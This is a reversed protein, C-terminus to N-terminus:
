IDKWKVKVIELYPIWFANMIGNRSNLPKIIWMMGTIRLIAHHSVLKFSTTQIVLSKVEIEM